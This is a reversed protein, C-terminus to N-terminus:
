DYSSARNCLVTATYQEIFGMKVSFKPITNTKSSQCIKEPISSVIKPGTNVLNAVPM